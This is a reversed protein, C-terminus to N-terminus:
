SGSNVPDVLLGSIARPLQTTIISEGAQLSPSRVLIRYQGSETLYDGVRQVTIAELRKDNVRYIRDNEYISQMPLAVVDVEVPMTVTLDVVRGIEPLRGEYLADLRFFADL